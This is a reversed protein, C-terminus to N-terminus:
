KMLRIFEPPVYDATYVKGKKRIEIGRRKMSEADIELVVPNRCHRRGVKLGEEVNESLYVEHRKMSLLGHKLISELRGPDTGHYLKDPITGKESWRTNVPISHGYRARIKGEALEFRGKEDQMVIKRILEEGVGYRKKLVKEVEEIKAWGNEDVEIGFKHPFHRLLGSLFRSIREEM